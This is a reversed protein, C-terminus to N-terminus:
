IDGDWAVEYNKGMWWHDQSLLPSTEWTRILSFAELYESNSDVNVQENWNGKDPSEAQSYRQGGKETEGYMM